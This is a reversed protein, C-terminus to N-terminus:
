SYVSTFDSEVHIHSQVPSSQGASRGVLERTTYCLLEVDRTGFGVVQQDQALEIWRV